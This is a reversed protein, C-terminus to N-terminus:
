ATTEKLKDKFKRALRVFLTEDICCHVKIMFDDCFEDFWKNAEMRGVKRGATWYGNNNKM